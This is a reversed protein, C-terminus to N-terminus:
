ADIKKNKTKRKKEGKKEEKAKEKMEKKQKKKENEEKQEKEKLEKKKANENMEKKKANEQTEEEKDNEMVKENNKTNLKEKSLIENVSLQNSSTKIQKENETYIAKLEDLSANAWMLATKKDWPVFHMLQERYYNIPDDALKYNFVRTINIKEGKEITKHIWNQSQHQQSKTAMKTKDPLKADGLENHLNKNKVDM